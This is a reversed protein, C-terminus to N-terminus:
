WLENRFRKALEIVTKWIWAAEAIEIGYSKNEEPIWEKVNHTFILKGNLDKEVSVYLNGANKYKDISSVLSHYHTSFICRTNNQIINDCVALAIATWDLSDTWRGLEDILVLSKESFKWLIEVMEDMEVFFTSQNKSYDDWSWARVYINDVIGIKAYKAPVFSWMHWLIVSIWASKLYISKWGMNPGTL